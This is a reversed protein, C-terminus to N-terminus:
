NFIEEYLVDSINKVRKGGEWGVSKGYDRESLRGVEFNKGIDNEHLFNSAKGRIATNM